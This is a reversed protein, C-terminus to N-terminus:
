YERMDYLCKRSLTVTPFCARGMDISHKQKPPPALTACQMSCRGRVLTVPNWDQRGHWIHTSNTTQERGQESLNKETYEPKEREM